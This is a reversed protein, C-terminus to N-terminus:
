HPWNDPDLDFLDNMEVRNGSLQRAARLARIMTPLTISPFPDRRYRITSRKTLQAARELRASSVGNEDLWKQLRTM